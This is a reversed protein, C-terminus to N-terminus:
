PKLSPGLLRKLLRPDLGKSAALYSILPGRDWVVAFQDSKMDTGALYEPKSAIASFTFDARGRLLMHGIDAYSKGNVVEIRNKSFGYEALFNCNISNRECLAIYNGQIIEEKTLNKMTPENRTILQKTVVNVKVVWHFNKDRAENKVVLMIVSNDSTEAQRMARIFPYMKLSYKINRKSLYARVIDVASGQITGDSATYSLMGNDYTLVQLVPLSADKNSQSAFVTASSCFSFLLWLSM